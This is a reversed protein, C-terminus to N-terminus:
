PLAVNVATVYRTAALFVVFCRMQFSMQAPVRTFLIVLPPSSLLLLLLRTEMKVSLRYNHANDDVHKKDRAGHTHTFRIEDDDDRLPFRADVSCLSFIDISRQCADQYSVPRGSSM